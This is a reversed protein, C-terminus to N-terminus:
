KSTDLQYLTLTDIESTSDHFYDVTRDLLPGVRSFIPEGHRIAAEYAPTMPKDYDLVYSVGAHAIVSDPIDASRDKRRIPFFLFSENMVRIATDRLLEHVAPGQALILPKPGGPEWNRSEQEIAAQIAATNEEGITNGIRGAHALEPITQIWIMASLALSAVTVISACWAPKSWAQLHMAFTLTALPLVHILYYPLTSQVFLAVALALLLCVTVFATSPHPRKTILLAAESLFVIPLAIAFLPAEHMLYFGKASLQPRQASWSFLHHFPLNNMVSGFQNDASIGGAISFSHNPIVYLGVIVMLALVAGSFFALSAKWTRFARHYWAAYLVIAPLLAELHPSVAFTLFMGSLGIMFCRRISNERRENRDPTLPVLVAMIGVFLLLVFGTIMDYRASHTAFMFSRTTVLLAISLITVSARIKIRYAFWGLFLLTSIGLVFSVVRGVTVLDTSARVVLQPVGYILAALWPSGLLLGPPSLLESGLAIPVTLRGHSILQKWSLMMWTEDGYWRFGDIVPFQYLTRLSMALLMLVTITLLLMALGHLRRPISPTLSEKKHMPFDPHLSSHQSNFSSAEPKVTKKEDNM